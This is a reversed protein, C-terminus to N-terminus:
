KTARLTCTAGWQRLVEVKSFAAAQLAQTEHQVTLPTDYHYLADDDIGQQAKLRLLTQRHLQEEADDVAFYDTLIFYGDPKLAERIRGYLPIKQAKTFHHLSEVSVAADFADHELPMDFYSCLVLTLDQAPFKKQLAALMKPALDIGVVSAAPNHAFYAELELGTGCGLDLVRAHPAQPLCSATFPYFAPAGAICTMQHADYEVIRHDFFAGM